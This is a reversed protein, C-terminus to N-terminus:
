RRPKTTPPTTANAASWADLWVADLARIVRVEWPDLPTQNLRCWSEIEAWSIAGPGSFGPPRGRAIDGFAAILYLLARPAAPTDLESPRRGTSAQAQQLHARLTCKGERTLDLRFEARAHDLLEALQEARLKGTGSRRAPGPWAAV